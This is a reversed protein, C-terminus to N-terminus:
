QCMKEMMALTETLKAQKEAESMVRVSGDDAMYRLRGHNNLQALRQQALHCNQERAAQQRALEQPDQPSTEKQAGPADQNEAATEEQPAATSPSPPPSSRMGQYQGAPPPSQTYQTVGNADVWKYFAGQASFTVAILIAGLLLTKNSLRM